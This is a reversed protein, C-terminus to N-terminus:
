CVTNNNNNNSYDDDGGGDAEKNMMNIDSIAVDILM